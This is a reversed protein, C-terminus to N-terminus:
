RELADVPSHESQGAPLKEGASPMALHVTQWSPVYEGCGLPDLLLVLHKGQPGPVNEGLVPEADQSCHGRPVRESLRSPLVAHTCHLAPEKALSGPWDAQEAHLGAHVSPSAYV